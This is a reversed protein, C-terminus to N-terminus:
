KESPEPPPVPPYPFFESYPSLKFRNPGVGMALTSGSASKGACHRFFVRKNTFLAESVNVRHAVHTQPRLLQISVPPVILLWQCSDQLNSDLKLKSLFRWKPPFPSTLNRIAYSKRMNWTYCM